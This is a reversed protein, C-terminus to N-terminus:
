MIKNMTKMLEQQKQNANKVTTKMFLKLKIIILEKKLKM